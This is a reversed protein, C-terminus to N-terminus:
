GVKIGRTERALLLSVLSLIATIALIIGIYISNVKSTGVIYGILLSQPLVGLLVGIQYALGSGSARYKPDFYESLYSSLVAVAGFALGM